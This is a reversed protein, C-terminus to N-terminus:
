YYEYIIKYLVKTSDLTCTCSIPYNNENYIYKYVHIYDANIINFNRQTHKLVNNPSLNQSEIHVSTLKLPNNKNDYEYSDDFILKDGFYQKIEAVNGISDYFLEWHQTETGSTDHLRVLIIRNNPDYEYDTISRFEYAEVGVFLYALTRQLINNDNYKHILYYYEPGGYYTHYVDEKILNKKDDYYFESRGELGTGDSSEIKIIKNSSNYYYLNYSKVDSASYM